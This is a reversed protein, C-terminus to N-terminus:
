KGENKTKNIRSMIRNIKELDAKDNKNIANEKSKKLIINIRSLMKNVSESHISDNSKLAEDRSKILLKVATEVDRNVVKGNLYYQALWALALYNTSDTAHIVKKMWNMADENKANDIILGLSDTHLGINRKRMAVVPDNPSWAYTYAIQHMAPIYGREALTLMGNYGKITKSADANNLDDLYTQYLTDNENFEVQKPWFLICAIVCVALVIAIIVMIVKSINKREPFVFEDIAARFQASTAYRETQKKATAKKIVAKIQKSKISKLPVQKQLQADMMDYSTGSFPLHGTLLQFYLIGIAYVDTSFNQNNVDGLILEPAAYGAKGLFQGPSTPSSVEKEGNSVRVLKKAIGFDILKIKGDTTVIINSPDIDRHVYGVDHLAMVGSLVKKIIETSIQRRDNNYENYFSEICPHIDGSSSRLNGDILDSLSIGDLYESVVYYRTVDVGFMDKEIVEIFAYMYVISENQLQISAERRAREIVIPPLQEFMAKIAVLDERGNCDVRKGLYVRGMGGEGLIGSDPDYEYYVKDKIEKSGQLRKVAM